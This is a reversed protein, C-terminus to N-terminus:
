ASTVVDLIYRTQIKKMVHTINKNVIDGEITAGDSNFDYLGKYHTGQNILFLDNLFKAIKVAKPDRGIDNNILNNNAVYVDVMVSDTIETRSGNLTLKVMNSFFPYCRLTISKNSQLIMDGRWGWKVDTSAIGTVNWKEQIFEEIIRGTDKSNTEAGSLPNRTILTM